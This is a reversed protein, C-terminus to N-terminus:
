EVWIAAVCCFIANCYLSLGKDVDLEVVFVTGNSEDVGLGTDGVEPVADGVQM